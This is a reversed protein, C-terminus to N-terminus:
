PAKKEPKGSILLVISGLAGLIFLAPFVFLALIFFVPEDGGEGWFVWGFKVCLGYVLNHLIACVPIGVASAGTLIFFLKRIGPEKLKATLVVLAAALALFVIGLYIMASPPLKPGWLRGLGLIAAVLVVFIAILAWFIVNRIKLMKMKGKASRGQNYM